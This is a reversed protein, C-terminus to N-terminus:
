HVTGYLGPHDGGLLFLVLLRAVTFLFPVGYSIVFLCIIGVLLWYWRRSFFLSKYFRKLM